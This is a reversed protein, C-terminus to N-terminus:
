FPLANLFFRQLWGMHQVENMVGKNRYELRVDAVQTSAVSNTNGAINRPDVTGSFRVSESGTNIAVQKEGAVRLNGNPLVEIVTTTITGTFSNNASSNGTGTGTNAGSLNLDNQPGFVGPLVGRAGATLSASGTRTTNTAVGKAARTNENLVVTVTDGVNRPRRDEFLPYSGYVAPQYISGRPAAHPQHPQPPAASVPGTVVPEHPVLACGALAALGACALVARALAAIRAPLRPLLGIAAQRPRSARGRGAEGPVAVRRAPALAPASRGYWAAAPAGHRPLRRLRKQSPTM